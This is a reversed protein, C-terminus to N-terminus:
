KFFKPLKIAHFSYRNIKYYLIVAFLFFSNCYKTYNEM